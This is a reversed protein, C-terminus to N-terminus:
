EGIDVLIFKYHADCAAMLHISFTKKYNFYASGTNPPAQIVVHKGDVAGICNPFNWRRWNEKAIKRFDNTTPAKLYTSALVHGIIRCVKHVIKSATSEGVRYALALSMM